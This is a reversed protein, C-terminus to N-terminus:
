IVCIEIHYNAKFKYKTVHASIFYSFIIIKEGLSVRPVKLSEVNGPKDYKKSLELVKDHSTTARLGSNVLKALNASIEPGVKEDSNMFEQLIELVNANDVNDTDKTSTDNHVDDEDSDTEYEDDESTYASVDTYELSDDHSQSSSGRCAGGFLQELQAEYAMKSIKNTPMHADKSLEPAKGAVVLLCSTKPTVEPMQLQRTMMQNILLQQQMLMSYLDPVGNNVDSCSHSTLCAQRDLRAGGVSDINRFDIHASDINIKNSTDNGSFGTDKASNSCLLERVVGSENDSSSKTASGSLETQNGQGLNDAMANLMAISLTVINGKGCM